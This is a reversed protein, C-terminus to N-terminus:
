ENKKSSSSKTLDADDKLNKDNNNNNNNNNEDIADGGTCAQVKEKETVKNVVMTKQKKAMLLKLLNVSPAEFSVYLLYALGLSQVIALSIFKYQM